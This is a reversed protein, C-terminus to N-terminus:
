VEIDVDSAEDNLNSIEAGLVVSVPWSNPNTFTKLYIKKASYCCDQEVPCDFCRDTSNAPANEKRFHLLSGFSSVKECKKKDGMWYVILDIDHCCKALLSFSSEAENHWNGRVFSHAFHEFGVPETHNINVIDGIVGSDIIEKIKICPPFYRLVHCVANIQQKQLRCANTIQICDDLTVAMPKELLM